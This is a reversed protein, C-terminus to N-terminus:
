PSRPAILTFRSGGPTQELRLKAGASQSLARALALHIGGGSITFPAKATGEDLSAPLGGVHITVLAPDLAEVSITVTPPQPPNQAPRAREVIHSGLEAIARALMAGDGSIKIGTPAPLEVSPAVGERDAMMEAASRVLEDVGVEQMRPELALDRMAGTTEVIVTELKAFQLRLKTRLVEPEMTRAEILLTANHLPNRLDHLLVSVLAVLTQHRAYLDDEKM